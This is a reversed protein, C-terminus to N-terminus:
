VDVYEFEFSIESRQCLNKFINGDNINSYIKVNGKQTKDAILDNKELLEKTRRAVAEAPDIIEIDATQLVAKIDDTLFPYHTCGLVLKDIGEQKM